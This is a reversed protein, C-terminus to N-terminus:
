FRVLSNEALRQGSCVRRGAGFTYTTRRLHDNIDATSKCGFKNDLWRAPEFEEPSEYENENMHIAWANYFFITGKSFFYGEYSDDETLM